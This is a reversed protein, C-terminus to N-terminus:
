VSIGHFPLCISVQILGMSSCSLTDVGFAAPDPFPSIFVSLKSDLSTVLLDIVPLLGFHAVVAQFVSQDLAWEM